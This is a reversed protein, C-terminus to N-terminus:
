QIGLAKRYKADALLQDYTTVAMNAKANALTTEADIMTILPLLGAEYQVKTIRRNEEASKLAKAAVLRREAANDRELRANHLEIRIGNMAAERQYELESIQADTESVKANTGFGSFLNWRLAVGGAFYDADSSFKLKQEQWGYNAFLAVSPFYDATNVAKLGELATIASNLQQIEPRASKAATFDQSFSAGNGDVESSAFSPGTTVATIMDATPLDVPEDYERKLLNNFNTRAIAQMNSAQLVDGEANALAVEARLIDNQQAKEARVLAETTALNQKALDRANSRIAVLESAKAYNYYAESVQYTLALARSEVESTAASLYAKSTRNAQWVAYNFIPWAAELKNDWPTIGFKSPEITGLGPITIIRGGKFETYRLNLDIKPWLNSSAQDVRAEAQNWRERVAALDPNQKLALQIYQNLVAPTQPVQARVSSRPFLFAALALVLTVFRITTKM